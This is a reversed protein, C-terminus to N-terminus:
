TFDPFFITCVALLLWSSSELIGLFRIFGLLGRFLRVFTKDSKIVEGHKVLYFSSFFRYFWAM